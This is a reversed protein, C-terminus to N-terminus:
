RKEYKEIIRDKIEQLEDEAFINEYHWLKGESSFALLYQDCYIKPNMILHGSNIKWGKLSSYDYSVSHGMQGIWQHALINRWQYLEESVLSFKADQQDGDIFFELFKKFNQKEKNKGGWFAEAITIVGAYIGLFLLSTQYNAPTSVIENNFFNSISNLLTEIAEVPPGDKLRKLREEYTEM